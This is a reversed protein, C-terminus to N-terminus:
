EGLSQILTALQEPSLTALMREVQTQKKITQKKVVRDSRAKAAPRIVERRHRLERIRDNLEEDTMEDIPKILQNIQM